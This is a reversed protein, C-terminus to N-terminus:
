ATCPATWAPPPGTSSPCSRTIMPHDGNAENNPLAYEAEVAQTFFVEITGPSSPPSVTSALFDSTMSAGDDNVAGVRVHYPTGPLLNTITYGHDVTSNEVV